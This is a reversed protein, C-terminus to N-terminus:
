NSIRWRARGYVGNTHFYDPDVSEYLRRVAGTIVKKMVVKGLNQLERALREPIDQKCIVFEPPPEYLNTRYLLAGAQELYTQQFYIRHHLGHIEKVEIVEATCNSSLVKVLEDELAANTYLGKSHAESMRLSPGRLHKEDRCVVVFIGFIDEYRGTCSSSPCQDTYLIPMLMKDVMIHPLKKLSNKTESNSSQLTYASGLEPNSEM